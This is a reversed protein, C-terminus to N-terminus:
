HFKTLTYLTQIGENGISRISGGDITLINSKSFMIREAEENAEKSFLIKSTIQDGDHDGDIGPLYLPCIKYSDIFRAEIRGKACNVDIVPYTEYLKDNIIM